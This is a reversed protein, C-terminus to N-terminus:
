FSEFDRRLKWIRRITTQVFSENSDCSKTFTCIEERLAVQMESASSLAESWETQWVQPVWVKHKLPPAWCEGVWVCCLQALIQVFRYTRWIGSEDLHMTSAMKWRLHLKEMREIYCKSIEFLKNQTMEIHMEASFQVSNMRVRWVLMYIWVKMRNRGNQFILVKGCVLENLTGRLGSPTASEPINPLTSRVM